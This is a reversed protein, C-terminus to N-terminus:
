KVLRARYRDIIKIVCVDLVIALLLSGILPNWQKWYPFYHIIFFHGIYLPYSLDGFFRDIKNSKTFEFIFPIGIAFLIIGLSAPEVARPIVYLNIHKPMFQYGVIYACLLLLASLGLSWHYYTKFFSSHYLRWGLAGFMFLYLIPGLFNYNWPPRWAHNMVLFLNVLLSVCFMGLMKRKFYGHALLFPALFYFGIEISLSWIPSLYLYNWTTKQIELPVALSSITFHGAHEVIIATFNSGIIFLNSFIYYISLPLPLGQFNIHPAYVLCLMLVIWYAPFLKLFRNIIFSSYSTYKGNLILAMYFGSIMFFFKVAALGDVLTLGRHPRACHYIVVSIALLFRVLGM